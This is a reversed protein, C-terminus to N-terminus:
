AAVRSAPAGPTTYAGDLYVLPDVDGTVQVEKIRGIFVTHTGYEFRGDQACVLSAQADHLYPVGHSSMQWDGTTFRAEGKLRGGCDIAIGEHRASLVNVCFDVGADLAQYMSTARNVCILLSPPETSLSDVATASMSYRQGEHACTIVAVSRALRRMALLMDARLPDPNLDTM